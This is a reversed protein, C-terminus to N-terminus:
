AYICRQRAHLRAEVDKCRISGAGPLHVICAKELLDSAVTSRSVGVSPALAEQSLKADDRAQKLMEAVDYLSTM